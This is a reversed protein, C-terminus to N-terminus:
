RPLGVRRHPPRPAIAHGDSLDGSLEFVGSPGDPMSEIMGFRQWGWPGSLPLSGEQTRDLRHDVLDQDIVFGCRGLLPMGRSLHKTAEAILIAVAATVGLHLAVHELMSTSLPFREDRQSM